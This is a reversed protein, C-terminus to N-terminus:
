WQDKRTSGELRQRRGRGEEEVRHRQPRRSEEVKQRPMQGMDM